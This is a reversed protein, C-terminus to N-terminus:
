LFRRWENLGGVIVRELWASFRAQATELDEAYNIQFTGDPILVTIPGPLALYAVVGIIGRFRPGIAHFSLALTAQPGGTNLLVQASHNYEAFDAVHGSDRVAKVRAQDNPPTGRVGFTFGRGISGIEQQLDAAVQALRQAAREQLKNAISKAALWEPMPLKGRQLLRDRAAVVADHPSTIPKIEYGIESAQIVEARQAEVFLAVLPRLDGADAKELAESYRDRDDRKVIVPFWGAKIFVLSAIARAVRGNGDAFPHIQTFRHHLWAAEVEIPTDRVQHEAHMRILADMESAVHEPPCYEHM